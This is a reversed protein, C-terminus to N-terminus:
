TLKFIETRFSQQRWINKLIILVTKVGHLLPDQHHSPTLVVENQLVLFVM